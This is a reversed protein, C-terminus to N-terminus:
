AAMTHGDNDSEELHEDAPEQNSPYPTDPPAAEDVSLGLSM